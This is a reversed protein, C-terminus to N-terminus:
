DKDNMLKRTILLVAAGILLFAGVAYFITTGMGGTSPLISGPRNNVKITLPKQKMTHTTKDEEVNIEFEEDSELLNYGNPAEVERLYYKKGSDLGKIFIKGDDKTTQIAGEPWDIKGDTGPNPVNAWAIFKGNTDLTAVMNKESNLLVFKADKLTKNENGNGYKLVEMEWTYTTTKDWETHSNDGWDLKTENSNGVGSVVANANLTASYTITIDTDTTITDLFAQTFVIHFTCGDILGTTTITYNSASIAEVKISNADLTLGSSMKDHVVYNKAGSKAHVVTKFNVTDGIQADNVDGYKDNEEVTKDITPNENKETIVPNPNTPTTDVIVNTGNTSTILYYGPNLSRFVIDGDTTPTKSEQATQSKAFAAAAKGFAKMDAPSDKGAKWTVHKDVMDIEVYSVGAGNGTFFDDWADVVTYFYQTKGSDVKLDMMKYINYTEGGQANKVTITNEDAAFVATTMSLVMVLSLLIGALKKIYKM